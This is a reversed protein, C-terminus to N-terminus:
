QKVCRKIAIIIAIPSLARRKYNTSSFQSYILLLQLLMEANYTDTHIYM